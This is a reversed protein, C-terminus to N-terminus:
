SWCLCFMDTVKLGSWWKKKECQRFAWCDSIKVTEKFKKLTNSTEQSIDLSEFFDVHDKPPRIVTCITFITLNEVSPRKRYWCAWLFHGSFFWRLKQLWVDLSTQMLYKTFAKRVAPCPRLYLFIIKLGCFVPKLLHSFLLISLMSFMLATQSYCIQFFIPKVIWSALVTLNSRWTLNRYVRKSAFYLPLFSAFLFGEWWCLQYVLYNPKIM